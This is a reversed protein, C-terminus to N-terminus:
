HPMGFLVKLMVKTVTIQAANFLNVEARSDLLEARAVTRVAEILEPWDRWHDSKGPQLVKMVDIRVTKCRPPTKVTFCNNIRFAVQLRRNPLARAERDNLANPKAGKIISAYKEHMQETTEPIEAKQIGNERQDQANVPPPTTTDNALQSRTKPMGQSIENTNQISSAPMVNDAHSDVEGPTTVRGHTPAAMYRVGVAQGPARSDSAELMSTTSDDSLPEVDRAGMTEGLLSANVMAITDGFVVGLVIALLVLTFQKSVSGTAEIDQAWYVLVLVPIFAM